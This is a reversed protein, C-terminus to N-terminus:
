KRRPILRIHAKASLITFLTQPPKATMMDQTHKIHM